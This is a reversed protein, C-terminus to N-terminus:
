HPSCFVTTTVYPTVETWTSGSHPGDAMKYELSTICDKKIKKKLDESRASAYRFHPATAPPPLLSVWDNRMVM